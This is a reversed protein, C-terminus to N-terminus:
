RCSVFLDFSHEDSRSQKEAVVTKCRSQTWRQLDLPALFMDPPFVAAEHGPLHVYRVVSGPLSLLLAASTGPRLCPVYGAVRM